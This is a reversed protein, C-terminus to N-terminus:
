RALLWTVGLTWNSAGPGSLRQARSLDVSFNDRVAWRAGARLYHAREEVYREAVFSWADLPSWEAAIGSRNVDAGRHVLDRGLNAHLALTDSAKWTALMSLTSGQYRPRVHAQSAPSVALGISFDETLPMAWKVQAGWGTASVGALRASEGAIGLEVPGVRCGAGAHLLREGGQSRGWWGEVECQGAELIAADDVAHHGGAAQGLAPWLGAALAVAVATATRIM